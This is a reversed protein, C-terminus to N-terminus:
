ALDPHATDSMNAPLSVHPLGPPPEDTLPSTDYRSLVSGAPLMPVDWKPLLDSVLPFVLVALLGIAWLAHRVSASARRLGFSVVSVCILLMSTRIVIGLVAIM